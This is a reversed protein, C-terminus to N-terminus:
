YIHTGVRLKSTFPGANHDPVNKDESYTPLEVKWSKRHEPGHRIFNNENHPFHSPWYETLLSMIDGMIMKDRTQLSLLKEKIRSSFLFLSRLYKSEDVASIHM